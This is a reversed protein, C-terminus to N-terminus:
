LSFSCRGYGSNSLNRATRGKGAIRHFNNEHLDQLFCYVDTQEKTSIDPLKEGILATIRLLCERAQVAPAQYPLRTIWYRGYGTLGNYQSFDQWPDYLVARYM